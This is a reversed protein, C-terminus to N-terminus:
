HLQTNTKRKQDKEENQTMLVNLQDIQIQYMEKENECVVNQFFKFESLSESPEPCRQILALFQKQTEDIREKTQTCLEYITDRDQNEDQEDRMDKEASLQPDKLENEMTSLLKQVNDMIAFVSQQNLNCQELLENMQNGGEQLM